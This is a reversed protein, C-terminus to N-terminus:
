LNPYAVVEVEPHQRLEQRILHCYQVNVVVLVRSGPDRHAVDLVRRTLHETHAERAQQLNQGALTDSLHYLINAVEHRVGRNISALDPASRQVAALGKRLGSAIGRQMGSAAPREPAHDGGIPVVVIDSQHALPLLAERYEVPLEGFDREAWQEPTMDLALFDPHINIVMEVLAQMDYPLPNHQFEMLTGLVAVRTPTSSGHGQSM